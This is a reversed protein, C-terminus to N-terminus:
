SQSSKSLDVTLSEEFGAPIMELRISKNRVKFESQVSPLGIWCKAKIM